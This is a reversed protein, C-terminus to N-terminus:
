FKKYHSDLASKIEDIREDISCILSVNQSLEGKVNELELQKENLLVILAYLGNLIVRTEHKPIIGTKDWDYLVFFATRTDNPINDNFFSGGTLTLYHRFNSLDDNNMEHKGKENKLYGVPLRAFEQMRALARTMSVIHAGLGNLLLRYILTVTAHSLSVRYM